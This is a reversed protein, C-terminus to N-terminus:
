DGDQKEFQVWYLVPFTATLGTFFLILHKMQILTDKEVRQKFHIQCVGVQYRVGRFKADLRASLAGPRNLINAFPDIHDLTWLANSSMM